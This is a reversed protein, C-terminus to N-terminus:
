TESTVPEQKQQSFVDANQLLLQYTMLMLWISVEVFITLNRRSRTKLKQKLFFSIHTKCSSSTLRRCEDFNTFNRRIRTEQKQQSFFVDANQLLLQYTKSMLLFSVEVEVFNTLNRRIRTKQSRSRSSFLYSSSSSSSSSIQTKCSCSTVRICEKFNTLNRCLRLPTEETNYKQTLFFSVVVEVLVHLNFKQLYSNRTKYECFSVVVAILM